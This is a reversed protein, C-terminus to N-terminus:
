IKKAAKYRVIASELERTLLDGQKGGDGTMKQGIILGLTKRHADVIQIVHKDLQDLDELFHMMINALKSVLPYDFMASEAKLKMVPKIMNEKVVYLNQNETDLLAENIASKLDSLYTKAEPVFDVKTNTMATEMKAVVKSHVANTGVLQKLRTNAKTVKAKSKTAAENM